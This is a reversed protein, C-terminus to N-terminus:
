RVHLNAENGTEAGEGHCGGQGAAVPELLRQGRMHVDDRAGLALLQGDRAEAVSMWDARM